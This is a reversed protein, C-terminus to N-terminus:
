RINPLVKAVYQNFSMDEIRVSTKYSFELFDNAFTRFFNEKMRKNAYKDFLSKYIKIGSMVIKESYNIPMVDGFLLTLFKNQQLSKIATKEVVANISDLDVFNDHAVQVDANLKITAEISDLAHSTDFNVMQQANFMFKSESMLKDYVALAKLQNLVDEKNNTLRIDSLMNDLSDIKNYLADTDLKELTTLTLDMEAEGDKKVFVISRLFEDTETLEIKREVKSNYYRIIDGAIYRDDKPNIGLRRILGYAVEKKASKYNHPIVTGNYLTRKGRMTAQVSYIVPQNILTLVKKFPVGSMIQYLVLGLNEQNMGSYGFKADKAIDVFASILSGVIRSIPVGEENIPNTFDKRPSDLLPQTFKHKFKLDGTSYLQYITNIVAPVGLLKKGGLYASRVNFNGLFSIAKMGKYEAKVTPYVKEFIGQIDDDITDTGDPQVLQSYNLPDLIFGKSLLLMENQLMSKESLYQSKLEFVDAKIKNIENSGAELKSEYEQEIYNYAQELDEFNQKRKDVLNWIIRKKKKSLDKIGEKSYYGLDKLKNNIEKNDLTLTDIKDFIATDEKRLERLKGLEEKLQKLKAKFSELSTNTKNIDEYDKKSLVKGSKTFHPMITFMKDIDYDSGSKAVIEAPTIIINGAEEPLFEAIEFVDMSNLGQTPIRYAVFEISEKEIRGLKILQNLSSLLTLNNEQAFAKVDERNLLFKWENILPIKCQATETRNKDRKYWRLGNRTYREYEEGTPKRFKQLKIGRTDQNTYGTSAVQVLAEGYVKQKVIQKNVLGQLLNSIETKLMSMEFPIAMGNNQSLSDKNLKLFDVVVEDADEEKLLRDILKAKDVIVGDATEIIGLEEYVEQTAVDTLQEIIQTWEKYRQEMTPSIFKGARKINSTILKLYQSGRNSLVKLKNATHIQEKFYSMFHKSIEGNYVLSGDEKKAVKLPTQVSSDKRVAGTKTVSPQVMIDVGNKLMTEMTDNLDTGKVVTPILVHFSTKLFSTPNVEEYEFIPGYYMFKLSTTTFGGKYDKLINEMDTTLPLNREKRMWAVQYNYFDEAKDSWNGVKILSARWFDLTVYSQGDGVTLKSYAKNFSARLRNKTREIFSLQEDKKMKKFAMERELEVEVVDEFQQENLEKHIKGNEGSETIEDEEVIIVNFTDSSKFKNGFAGGLSATEEINKDISKSEIPVTGGSTLANFRKHPDKFWGLNGHFLISTEINYIVQNWNFRTLIDKAQTDVNETQLVKHTVADSIQKNTVGYTSLMGNLDRWNTNNFNDVWKNFGARDVDLPQGNELFLLTDNAQFLKWNGDNNKIIEREAQYYDWMKDRFEEYTNVLNADSNEMKWAFASSSSQTRMIEMTGKDNMSVINMLLWQEPRLSTTKFGRNTYDVGSYNIWEIKAGNLVKGLAISVKGLPTFLNGLKRKKKYMEMKEETTEAEELTVSELKAYEFKNLSNMGETVTSFTNPLIYGSEKEGSANLSMMSPLTENHKSEIRMANNIIRAYGSYKVGNIKQDRRTIQKLPNHLGDNNTDNYLAELMDFLSSNSYQKDADENKIIPFTLTEYFKPDSITKQDFKVGLKSFLKGVIKNLELQSGGSKYKNMLVDRMLMIEGILKPGAQNLGNKESKITDKSEEFKKQFNEKIRDVNSGTNRYTIFYTRKVKQKYEKSYDDFYTETEDEAKQIEVPTEPKNFAQYFQIYMDRDYANADESLEFDEAKFDELSKDESYGKFNFAGLLQEAQPIGSSRLWMFFSTPNMGKLGESKSLIKAFLIKFDSLQPLQGDEKDITLSLLTKVANSAYNSVNVSMKREGFKDKTKVEEIATDGENELTNEQIKDFDFNKFKFIKSNESWIQAGEKNVYDEYGEKYLLTQISSLFKDGKFNSNILRYISGADDM